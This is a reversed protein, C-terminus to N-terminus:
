SHGLRGPRIAVGSKLTGMSGPGVHKLDRAARAGIIPWSALCSNSGVPACSPELAVRAFVGKPVGSQHWLHTQPPPAGM